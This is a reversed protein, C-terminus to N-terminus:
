KDSPQLCTKESLFDALDDGWRGGQGYRVDFARRHQVGVRFRFGPFPSRRCPDDFVARPRDIIRLQLRLHAGEPRVLM